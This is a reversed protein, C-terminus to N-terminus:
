YSRKLTLLNAVADDREFIIAHFKITAIAQKNEWMGTMQENWVSAIAMNMEDIDINQLSQLPHDLYWSILAYITNYYLRIAFM